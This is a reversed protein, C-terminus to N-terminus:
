AGDMQGDFAPRVIPSSVPKRGSFSAGMWAPGRHSEQVILAGDVRPSREHQRDRPLSSIQVARRRIGPRLSEPRIREPDERSDSLARLARPGEGPVTPFCLSGLVGNANMDGIRADIDYCGSRLQSLATPEMGYEEPRRGAVANLGVNPIQAGEFVWLDTGDPKHVLRPARDKWKAGV